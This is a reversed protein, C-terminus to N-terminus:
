ATLGRRRRSTAILLAGVGLIVLGALGLGFSDAGTFALGATASSSTKPDSTSGTSSGSSSSGSLPVPILGTTPTSITPPPYGAAITISTASPRQSNKSALFVSSAPRVTSADAGSILGPLFIFVGYTLVAAALLKWAAARMWQERRTLDLNSHRVGV